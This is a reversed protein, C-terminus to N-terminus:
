DREVREAMQQAIETLKALKKTNQGFEILADVIDTRIVRNKGKLVTRSEIFDQRKCGKLSRLLDGILGTAGDRDIWYAKGRVM